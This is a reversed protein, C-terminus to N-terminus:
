VDHLSWEDGARIRKLKREYKNIDDGLDDRTGFAFIGEIEAGDRDDHVLEQIADVMVGFTYRLIDSDRTLIETREGGHVFHNRQDRLAPLRVEFLESDIFTPHGSSSKDRKSARQIFGKCRKLVEESDDGNGTMTLAELSQWLSLFEYQSTSASNAEYYAEFAGRWADAIDTDVRAIHIIDEFTDREQPGLRLPHGSGGEHSTGYGVYEDDLTILHYQPIRVIRRSDLPDEEGTEFDIAAGAEQNDVYNMTGAIAAVVGRFTQSAGAVSTADCEFLWFSAESKSPLENRAFYADSMMEGNLKPTPTDVASAIVDKVNERQTPALFGQSLPLGRPLRARSKPIVNLSFYITYTDKTGPENEEKLRDLVLTSSHWYHPLDDPTEVGYTDALIELIDESTEDAETLCEPWEDPIEEESSVTEDFKQFEDLIARETKLVAVFHEHIRVSRSKGVRDISFELRGGVSNQYSSPDVRDSIAAIAQAYQEAGRWNNLSAGEAHAARLAELGKRVLAEDHLSM